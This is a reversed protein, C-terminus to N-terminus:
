SHEAAPPVARGAATILGAARLFATSLPADCADSSGLIEEISCIALDHEGVRRLEGELRLRYYAYCGRLLREGARGTPEEWSFNRKACEASKDM